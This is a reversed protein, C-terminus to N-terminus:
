KIPDYGGPHFPHCKALRLVGKWAGLFLGFKGIALLTYESCSPYFRCSSPFVPSIFRQYIKIVAIGLSKM